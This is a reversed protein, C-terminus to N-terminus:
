TGEVGVAAGTSGAGGGLGEVAGSVAGGGPRRPVGAGDSTGNGVADSGTAGAVVDAGISAGITGAGPGNDGVGVGGVGPVGPGAGVLAGGGGRGPVNAGTGNGFSGCGVRGADVTGGLTTGDADARGVAGSGDTGVVWGGGGGVGVSRGRGAGDLGGSGGPRDPVGTRGQCRAPPADRPVNKLNRAQKREAPNTRLPEGPPPREIMGPEECPTIPAREHEQAGDGGPKGTRDDQEQRRLDAMGAAERDEATM